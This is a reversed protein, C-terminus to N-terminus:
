NQQKEPSDKSQGTDSEPRGQLEGLKRKAESGLAELDIGQKNKLDVAAKELASGAGSVEGKLDEAFETVGSKLRDTLSGESKGERTLWPVFTFALAVLLITAAPEVIRWLPRKLKEWHQALYFFTFPPILFFIGQAPSEKFPISILYVLGTALRGLNLLVAAAAGALALPRNKFVVGALILVLFPISVLYASENIWRLIKQILRIEGRYVRKVGGLAAGRSGTPQIAAVSELSYAPRDPQSDERLAAAVGPRLSAPRIAPESLPVMAASTTIADIWSKPRSPAGEPSSSTALDATTTVHAPEVRESRGNETEFPIQVRNGCSKCRGKRGALASDVDFRSGCYGCHFSVLGM